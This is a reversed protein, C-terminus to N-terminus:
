FCLRLGFRWLVYDSNKEPFNERVDSFLGVGPKLRYDVGGGIHGMWQAGDRYQRGGGGFAYPALRWQEIPYRAFLSANIQNPWDVKEMRTEVGAGLWQTFFYNAGVGVGLHWNDRVTGYADLQWEHAPFYNGGKVSAYPLADALVNSANLMAIAAAALLTQKM